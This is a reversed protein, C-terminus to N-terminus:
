ISCVYMHIYTHLYVWMACTSTKTTYLFPRESWLVWCVLIHAYMHTALLQSRILDVALDRERERPLRTDREWETYGQEGKYGQVRDHGTARRGTAGELLDIEM